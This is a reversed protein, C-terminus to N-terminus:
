ALSTHSARGASGPPVNERVCMRTRVDQWYSRRAWHRLSEIKHSGSFACLTECRERADVARGARPRGDSGDLRSGCPGRECLTATPQGVVDKGESEPQPPEAGVPEAGTIDPVAADKREFRPTVGDSAIHETTAPIPEGPLGDQGPYVLAGEARRSAEPSEGLLRIEYSGQPVPTPPSALAKERQHGWLFLGANLLLLVFFVRALM